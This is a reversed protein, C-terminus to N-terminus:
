RGENVRYHTSQKTLAYHVKAPSLRYHPHSNDLAMEIGITEPPTEALRTADFPPWLNLLRTLLM